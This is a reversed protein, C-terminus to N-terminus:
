WRVGWRQTELCGLRGSEASGGALDRQTGKGTGLGLSDFTNGWLEPLGRRIAAVLIHRHALDM